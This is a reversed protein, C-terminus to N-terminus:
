RCSISSASMEKRPQTSVVAILLTGVPIREAWVGLGSDNHTRVRSRFYKINLKTGFESLVVSFHTRWLCWTMVRHGWGCFCKGKPAPINKKLKLVGQIYFTFLVTALYTLIIFCVANQLLFLSYISHKFYETGINTSYIYLICRKSILPATRGSYHDNPTLPNPRKAGSNNKKLKLVGTYLIHIICSGFTQIIFCVANQLPFYPSYINHKFYETGM